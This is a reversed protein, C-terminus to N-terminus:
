NTGIKKWQFNRNLQIFQSANVLGGKLLEPVNKLAYESFIGSYTKKIFSEVTTVHYYTKLTSEINIDIEQNQKQDLLFTKTRYFKKVVNNAGTPNEEVITDIKAGKELGRM